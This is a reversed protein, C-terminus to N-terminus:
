NITQMQTVARAWHRDVKYVLATTLGTYDKKANVSSHWLPELRSQARGYMGASRQKICDVRPVDNPWSPRTSFPFFNKPIAKKHTEALSFGPKTRAKSLPVFKDNLFLFSNFSTSTLWDNGPYPIQPPATAVVNDDLHSQYYTTLLSHSFQSKKMDSGISQIHIATDMPGYIM